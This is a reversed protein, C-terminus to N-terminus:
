LKRFINVRLPDYTSERKFIAPIVPSLTDNGSDLEPCARLNKILFGLHYISKLLILSDTRIRNNEILMNGIKSLLSYIM